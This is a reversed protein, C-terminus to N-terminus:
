PVAVAEGCAITGLKGWVGFDSPCATGCTVADGWGNAGVASTADVMGPTSPHVWTKGSYPFGRTGAMVATEDFYNGAGSDANISDTVFHVSGDFFACNVGSTHYSQATGFGGFQPTNSYPAVFTLNPGNPPLITSVTNCIATGSYCCGRMSRAARDPAINNGQVYVLGRSMREDANILVVNGPAAGYGSDGCGIMGGRLSHTAAMPNYTPAAATNLTGPDPAISSEAFCITNSTGDVVNALGVEGYDDGDQPAPPFACRALYNGAPTPSDGKGWEERGAAVDAICFMYNVATGGAMDGDTYTQVKESPCILSAIHYDRPDGGPFTKWNASWTDWGNTEVANVFDMFQATSEMFPYLKYHGGWGFRKIAGDTGKRKPFSGIADHRTHIALGLQKM